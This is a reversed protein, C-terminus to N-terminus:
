CRSSPPISLTTACDQRLHPMLPFATAFVETPYPELRTAQLENPDIQQAEGDNPPFSALVLLQHRLFSTQLILKGHDVAPCTSGIKGRCLSLAQVPNRHTPSPRMACTKLRVFGSLLSGSSAIKVKKAVRPLNACLARIKNPEVSLPPTPPLRAQRLRSNIWRIRYLNASLIGRM